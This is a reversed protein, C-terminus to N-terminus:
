NVRTTRPYFPPATYIVRGDHAHYYVHLNDGGARVSVFGSLLGGQTPKPQNGAVIFKVSGQHSMHSYAGSYHIHVCVCVCTVDRGEEMWRVAPCASTQTANYCCEVGAGSLVYRSYEDELYELCHDHGSM